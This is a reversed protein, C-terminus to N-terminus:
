EWLVAETWYSGSLVFTAARMLAVVLAPNGAVSWAVVCFAAVGFAPVCFHGGGFDDQLGGEGAGLTAMLGGLGHGGVCTAEKVFAGGAFGDQSGSRAIAADEAGVAGDLAWGDM